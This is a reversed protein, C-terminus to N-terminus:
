SINFALIVQKVGEAGIQMTKTWNQGPVMILSNRDDGRTHTARKNYQQMNTSPYHRSSKMEGRLDFLPKSCSKLREADFLLYTVTHFEGVACPKFTQQGIIEYDM